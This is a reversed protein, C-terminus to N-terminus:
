WVRASDPVIFVTDPPQWQGRMQLESQELGKIREEQLEAALELRNLRHNDVYSCVSLMICLVWLWVLLWRM